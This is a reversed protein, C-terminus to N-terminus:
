HRCAWPIPVEKGPLVKGPQVNDHFEEMAQWQLGMSNWPLWAPFAVGGRKCSVQGSGSLGQNELCPVICERKCSQGGLHHSSAVTVAM